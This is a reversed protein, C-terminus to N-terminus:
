MESVRIFMFQCQKTAVNMRMIMVIMVIMEFDEYIVRTAMEGELRISSHTHKGKALNGYAAIKSGSGDCAALHM